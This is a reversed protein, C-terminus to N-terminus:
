FLSRITWLQGPEAWDDREQGRRARCPSLRVRVLALGSDAPETVHDCIVVAEGKSGTLQVESSGLYALAGPHPDSRSPNAPPVWGSLGAVTSVSSGLIRKSKAVQPNDREECLPQQTNLDM